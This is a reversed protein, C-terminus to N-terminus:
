ATVDVLVIHLCFVTLVNFVWPLIKFLCGFEAVAFMWCTLVCTICEPSYDILIVYCALCSSVHIALSSQEDVTVM